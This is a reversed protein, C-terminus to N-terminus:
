VRKFFICLYSFPNFVRMTKERAYVHTRERWREEKRVKRKRRRDLSRKSKKRNHWIIELEDNGYPM